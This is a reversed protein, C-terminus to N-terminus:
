GRRTAARGVQAPRQAAREAGAALRNVAGPAAAPGTRPPDDEQEVDRARHAVVRAHEDQERVGQRAPVAADLDEAEARPQRAQRSREGGGIGVLRQAARCAFGVVPIRARADALRELQEEVVVAMGAEGAASDDDDARVPELDAIGLQERLLRCAQAPEGV